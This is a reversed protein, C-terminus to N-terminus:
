KQHIFYVAAAAAARVDRGTGKEPTRTEGTVIGPSERRVGDETHRVRPERADDFLVVLDSDDVNNV